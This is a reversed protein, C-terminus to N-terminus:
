MEKPDQGLQIPLALIQCDDDMEMHSLGNAGTLAGTPDDTPTDTPADTPSDTPIDTPADVREYFPQSCTPKTRCVPMQYVQIM